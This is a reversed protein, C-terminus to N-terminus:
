DLKEVEGDGNNNLDELQLKREEIEDDMQELKRKKENFLEYVMRSQAYIDRRWLNQMWGMSM